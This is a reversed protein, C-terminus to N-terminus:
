GMVNKRMVYNRFVQGGREVQQAREVTFGQEEFFPKATISAHTILSTRGRSRATAELHHLLQSATGQRQRQAHVYLFDILGTETLNSFGVVEGQDEAVVAYTGHLRLQFRGSDDPRPAWAQVQADTYDRRNITRVTEYFLQAIAPYDHPLIERIQM